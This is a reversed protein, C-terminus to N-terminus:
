KTSGEFRYRSKIDWRGSPALKSLFKIFDTTCKNRLVIAFSNSKPDITVVNSDESDEAVATADADPDENGKIYCEYGGVDGSEWESEKAETGDNVFCLCTDLEEYSVLSSELHAVTYDLGRRFRRIEDYYENIKLSTIAYLYRRFADSHMLETRILRLSEGAADGTDEGNYQLYHRVDPPGVPSWFENIGISRDPVSQTNSTRRKKSEKENNVTFQAISAQRSDNLFDNLQVFSNNLFQENMQKINRPDLYVPNIFQQLYNIDAPTLVGNLKKDRKNKPVANVQFVSPDITRYPLIQDRNYISKDYSENAKPEFHFWGSISLRPKDSYVEQVSHFSVGPQVTFLAMTNFKPLITTTPDFAAIFKNGDKLPYLELAGGDQETWANDDDGETLYLIYAICRTGIVDDHCLLHCGQTYVNASCDIKDTLPECGTIQEIFSTFNKSYLTNRLKSFHPMSSVDSVSLDSSQYVKYLDTEKLTATMSTKLEEKIAELQSNSCFPDLVVHRYPLSTDHLSRYREITPGHSLSNLIHSPKAKKSM